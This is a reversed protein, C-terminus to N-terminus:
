AGRNQENLLVCVLRKGGRIARIDEFCPFNNKRPIGAIQHVILGNAASIESLASRAKRFSLDASLASGHKKACIPFVLFSRDSRGRNKKRTPFDRIFSARQAKGCCRPLRSRHGGLASLCACKREPVTGTRRHGGSMFGPFLGRIFPSVRFFGGPLSSLVSGSINFPM